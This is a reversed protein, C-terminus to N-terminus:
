GFSLRMLRQEIDDINPVLADVGGLEVFAAVSPRSKDMNDKDALGQEQVIALSPIGQTLIGVYPMQANGTLTNLVAVRSNKVPPHVEKGSVGEFSILPVKKDRWELYGLFWDPGDEIATPNKYAVVEAIAANPLLATEDYLPITLCHIAGSTKGSAVMEKTDVM